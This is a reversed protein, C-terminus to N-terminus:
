LNQLNKKIASIPTRGYMRKGSQETNNYLKIVYEAVERFKEFTMVQNAIKANTKGM